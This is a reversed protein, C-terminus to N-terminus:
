ETNPLAQSARVVLAVGVRSLLCGRGDGSCCWPSQQGWLLCSACALGGESRCSLSRGVSALDNYLVALVQLWQADAQTLVAREWEEGQSSEPLKQQLKRAIKAISFADHGRVGGRWHRTRWFLANLNSLAACRLLSFGSTVVM